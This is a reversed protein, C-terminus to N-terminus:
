REVTSHIPCTNSGSCMKSLSSFAQNPDRPDHYANSFYHTLKCREILVQETSKCDSFMVPSMRVINERMLHPSTRITTYSCGSWVSRQPTEPFPQGSRQKRNLIGWCGLHHGRRRESWWGFSGTNLELTTLKDSLKSFLYSYWSPTDHYYSLIMYYYTSKKGGRLTDIARSHLKKSPSPSLQKLM